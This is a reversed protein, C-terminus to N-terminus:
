LLSQLLSGGVSDLYFTTSQLLGFKHLSQFCVSCSYVDIQVVLPLTGLMECWKGSTRKWYIFGCIMLLVIGSGIIIVLSISVGIAIQEM